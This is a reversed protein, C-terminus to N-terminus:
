PLDRRIAAGKKDTKITLTAGPLIRHPVVNPPILM